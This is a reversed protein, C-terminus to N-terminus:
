KGQAAPAAVPAVPTTLLDSPSGALPGASGSAIIYTTNGEQIKKCEGSLLAGSIASKFEDVGMKNMMMKYLSEMRIKKHVHVINRLELAKRGQSDQGIKSFVKDMDAELSTIIDISKSLHSAEIILENSEAASLVMALKHIHTQKRAIYGGFYENDLHKPRNGHFEAYWTEGLEFAEPSLHMEGKM